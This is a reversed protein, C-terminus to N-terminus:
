QERAVKAPTAAQYAEGGGGERWGQLENDALRPTPFSTNAKIPLDIARPPVCNFSGVGDEVRSKSLGKDHIRSQDGRVRIRV